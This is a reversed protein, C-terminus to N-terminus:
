KMHIFNEIYFGSLNHLSRPCEEPLDNSLIALGSIVADAPSQALTTPVKTVGEIMKDMGHLAACGGFLTIGADLVENVHSLPIKLVAVCIADLLDAMPKEFAAYMDETTLSLAVEEGNEVRKGLIKQPPFTTYGDNFVTGAKMKALEATRPTIHVGYASRVYEQLAKDFSEGGVNVTRRYLIKGGSLVMLSTRVAGMDVLICHTFPSIYEACMAAIPSYVTYCSKFGIRLATEILAVEEEDTIGAPVSLLLRGGRRERQGGRCIFDYLVHYTIDCNDTLSARFPRSLSIDANGPAATIADKGVAVISGTRRHIAVASPEKYIEKQGPFVARLNACGLDIVYGDNM